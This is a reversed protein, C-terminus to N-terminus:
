YEIDLQTRLADIHVHAVQLYNEFIERQTDFFNITKPLFTKKSPLQAEELEGADFLFVRSYDM